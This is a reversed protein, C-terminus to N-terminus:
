VEILEINVEAFALKRGDSLTFYLMGEYEGKPASLDAAKFKLVLNDTGKGVTIGGNTTDLLMVTTPPDGLDSKAHMVLSATTTLLDFPVGDANKWTYAKIVDVGRPLCYDLCLPVLNDITTPDVSAAPGPECTPHVEDTNGNGGGDVGIFQSPPCGQWFIPGCRPCCNPDQTELMLKYVGPYGSANEPLLLTSVANVLDNTVTMPIKFERGGFFSGILTAAKLPPGSIKFPLTLKQM